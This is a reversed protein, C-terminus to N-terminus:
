FDEESYEEETYEGEDDGDGDFFDSNIQDNIEKKNEIITELHIGIANVLKSSLDQIDRHSADLIGEIESLIDSSYNLVGSRIQTAYEDADNRIKTSEATANQILDNAQKYAQQMIETENVMQQARERAEEIIDAADDEAQKIISDRNAIVKQYRKVEDPTRRKLEDILDLLEDKQVVIKTQSFATPKCNEVFDYISDIIEEIRTSAM